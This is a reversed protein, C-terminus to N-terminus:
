QELFSHRCTPCTNKEEFWRVACKECLIHDVHCDLRVMQVGVEVDEMCILCREGVLSEDASFHEFKSIRSPTLGNSIPEEMQVTLPMQLNVQVYNQPIQEVFNHLYQILPHQQRPQHQQRQQHFGDMSFLRQYERQQRDVHQGYSRQLSSAAQCHNRLPNTVLMDWEEAERGVFSQRRTRRPNTTPSTM